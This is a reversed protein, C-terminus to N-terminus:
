SLGIPINAKLLQSIIKYSPLNGMLIFKYHYDKNCIIVLKSKSTSVLQIARIDEWRAEYKWFFFPSRVHLHTPTFEFYNFYPGALFLAILIFMSPLILLSVLPFLKSNSTAFVWAFLMLTILLLYFGFNNLLPERLNKVPINDLLLPPREEKPKVADWHKLLKYFGFSLPFVSYTKRTTHINCVYGATTLFSGNELPSIHQVEEWPLHIIRGPFLRLITIKRNDFSIIPFIYLGYCLTAVGALLLPLMAISFGTVLTTAYLCFFSIALLLAPAFAIPYIYTKQM